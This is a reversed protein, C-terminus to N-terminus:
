RRKCCSSARDLAVRLSRWIPLWLYPTSCYHTCEGPHLYHLAKTYDHYPLFILEGDRHSSYSRFAPEASSFEPDFVNLFSFNNLFASQHMNDLHYGDENGYLSTHRSKEFSTTCTWHGGPPSFHKASTQRWALLKLNHCRAPDYRYNKLLNQMSTGFEDRNHCHLGNHDLFKNRLHLVTRDCLQLLSSPTPCTFHCVQKTTILLYPESSGEFGAM